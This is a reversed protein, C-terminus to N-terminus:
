WDASRFFLLVTGNAGKLSELTQVRGFEDRASFSPAKQGVALGISMAETSAVQITDEDLTGRVTVTDGLHGTVKEQPELSYMVRNTDDYLAIKAGPVNKFCEPSENFAEDANCASTVLVGSWAGPKPPTNQGASALVAAFLMAGAGILMRKTLSNNAVMPM